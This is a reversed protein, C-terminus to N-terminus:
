RGGAAQRAAYEKARRLLDPNSSSAGQTRRAYKQAARIRPNKSLEGAAGGPARLYTPRFPNIARNLGSQYDTGPKTKPSIINSNGYPTGGGDLIRRTIALYPVTSELGANVAVGVKDWGSPVGEPNSDTPRVKLKNGFPDLGTLAASAGSLQPALPAVLGNLNGRVIPATLGWPTYRGVDVLGGDKRVIANKLDPPVGAHAADWDEQVSQSVKLLAATAVTHHVPMTWYVFRAAALTWPLFPAFTQIMRRLTPNFGEYKGLLVHQAEMFRQQTPTHVLGQGAERAAQEGLWITKHWAGTMERVDARIEKGLGQMQMGRELVRNIAFFGHGLGLALDITQKVIPLNRVVHAGYMALGLKGDDKFDEFTRHVSAGKNGIFLGGLQQARIERAAAVMRPDGSREMTKLTKSAARYDMAAGPLIIGAGSLPLRVLMPEVFNGTLWRLQPLVAMRFPENLMQALKEIEGSPAAHKMLQDWQGKPMLVANRTRGADGAGETIIRDNFMSLHATQMAAVSQAVGVDGQDARSLKSAFARVAVYEGHGDESLRRALETAEKETFYGGQQVVRKEHATLLTPDKDLAPHKVSTDHILRDIQEAKSVTVSSHVLSDRVVADGYATEGRRFMSGTRTAAGVVPRSDPKFSQHYARAGLEKSGHPVYALTSPDRGALQAHDAIAKDSLFGGNPHRIGANTEPMKSARAAVDAKGHADRADRLAQQARELQAALAGAAGDGAADRLLHPAIGGTVTRTAGAGLVTLGKTDVALIHGQGGAFRKADALNDYLYVAGAGATPRLGNQRISKLKTAASVATDRVVHYMIHQGTPAGARGRKADRLLATKPDMRGALVASQDAGAAQRRAGLRERSLGKLRDVEQQARDVKEKAVRAEAQLREHAVVKAPDRGSVALRTRHADVWAARAADRAPGRPAAEMTAHAARETERAAKELKLHEEVTFHMADMHALAYETMRSRRAAAPDLAKARVLSDTAANLAQSHRLGAGFIANAQRLVKPSAAAKRLERESAEARARDAATKYGGGNNPAELEAKIKDARRLLDDQLTAASRITGTAVLHALDRAQQGRVLARGPIVGAIAARRGARAYAKATDSRAFREVANARSAEHNARKRQMSDMRSHGYHGGQWREVMTPSPKVVPVRRGRQVVTVVRGHQDRVVEEGADKAMQVGKRISDMSFKREMYAGNRIAGVDSTLAVPSRVTSGFRALGGRVGKAAVNSGAGRALGGAVRGAIGAAATVDLLAFGPHEHFARDAGKFDGRVLHGPVSDVIGEKLGLAITGADKKAGKTDGHALKWAVKGGMVGAIVPATGVAAADKLANKAIVRPGIDGRDLTTASAALRRAATLDIAAPGIGFKTHERGKKARPSTRAVLSRGRAELDRRAGPSANVLRVKRLTRPSYPKKGAATRLDQLATLQYARRAGIGQVRGAQRLAAGAPTGSVALARRDTTTLGANRAGAITRSTIQRRRRQEDQSAAREAKRRMAPSVQAWARGASRREAPSM